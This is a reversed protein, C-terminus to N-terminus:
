EGSGAAPESKEVFSVVRTVSRGNGDNVTVYVYGGEPFVEPCTVEVSGTTATRRRIATKLRGDTGAVVVAGAAGTGTVEYDLTVKGGPAIPVNEGVEAGDMTLSLGVEVYRPLTLVTSDAALILEVRDDLVNAGSFFEKADKGKVEWDTTEWTKGNDWSICWHDKVIELLPTKGDKGDVLFREGDPSRMWDDKENDYWYWHDGDPRVGLVFPKADKGDVGSYLDIHYTDDKVVSGDAGLTVTRFFLSFGGREEDQFEKVDVIYGKEAMQSVIGHLNVLGNNMDEVQEHLRDIENQMTILEDRVFQGCGSALLAAAM